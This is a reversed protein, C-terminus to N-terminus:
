EGQFGDDQKLHRPKKFLSRQHQESAEREANRALRDRKDRQESDILPLWWPNKARWKEPDEGSLLSRVDSFMRNAPITEKPFLKGIEPDLSPHKELWPCRYFLRNHAPTYEEDYLTWYLQTIRDMRNMMRIFAEEEPTGLFSRGFRKRDQADRERLRLWNSDSAYIVLSRARSELEKWERYLVELRDVIETVNEWQEKEESNLREYSGFSRGMGAIRRSGETRSPILSSGERLPEDAIAGYREERDEWEAFPGNAAEVPPANEYLNEYPRADGWKRGNQKARIEEISRQRGKAEAEQIEIMRRRTAPSASKVWAQPERKFPSPWQRPSPKQESQVPPTQTDFRYFPSHEHQM